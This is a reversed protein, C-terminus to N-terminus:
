KFMYIGLKAMEMCLSVIALIRVLAFTNVIRLKDMRFTFVSTLIERQLTQKIQNGPNTKSEKKAKDQISDFSNYSPCINIVTYM